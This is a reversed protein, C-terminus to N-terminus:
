PAAVLCSLATEALRSFDPASALGIEDGFATGCLELSTMVTLEHGSYATVITNGTRDCAVVMVARDEAEM